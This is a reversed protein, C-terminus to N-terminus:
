NEQRLVNVAVWIWDVGKELVLGLSVSFRKDRARIQYIKDLGYDASHMILTNVSKGDIQHPVYLATKVNPLELGGTFGLETVTMNEIRDNQESHMGVMVPTSTLIQIGASIEDDNLRAIRRLVGIQWNESNSLRMGLLVNPRIWENESFRLIAGFGGNSENDIAWTQWDTQKKNVVYPNSAAASKQKTRSSVFGYLRMDMIEDYDIQDKAERGQRMFKDNDEKIFGCIRDLGHIIDAAKTVKTRESRKVQSNRMSMTWFVDLHKLLESVAPGRADPGLDLSAYSAGTMLRGLIEQVQNVLDNLGWYRYPEGMLEPNIKQAGQSEQLNVCFHHRDEMYKRSIQILKSWKELWFDVMDIQRVSLNNNALTNLMLMQIYEDACSSIEESIAPYLSFPNSDFGGIESLRYLQHAATWIKPPVREFRFYHWKAQISLYRLSRALVVPMLPAFQKQLAENSEAQVFRQYADVMDHSYTVIDKWLKQEIEKSMRPNSVYQYRVADFAEQVHEDILMLAQLSDFTVAQNGAVFDSVIGHVKASRTAPDVMDLNKCWQTASKINALPSKEKSFLSSIRDLM